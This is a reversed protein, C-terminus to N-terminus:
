GHNAYFSAQRARRAAIASRVQQEDAETYTNQRRANCSRCRTTLNLIEFVFEPFLSAPLVHDAELQTTAQCDLCWNQATICKTRLRQWRATNRFHGKTSKPTRPLRCARCRSGSPITEGCQICSRPLSV